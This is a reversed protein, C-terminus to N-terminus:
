GSVGRDVDRLLRQGELVGGAMSRPQEVPDEPGNIEANNM